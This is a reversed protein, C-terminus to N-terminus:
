VERNRATAQRVKALREDREQRAWTIVDSHDDCTIPQVQKRRRAIREAASWQSRIAATAAAIEAATPDPQQIM